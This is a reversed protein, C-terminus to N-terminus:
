AGALFFIIKSLFITVLSIFWYIEPYESVGM